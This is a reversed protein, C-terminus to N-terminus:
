SSLPVLERVAEGEAGVAVELAVAVEAEVLEITTSNNYLLDVESGSPRM